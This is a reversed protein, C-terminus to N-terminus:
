IKSNEDGLKVYNIYLGVNLFKGEDYFLGENGM